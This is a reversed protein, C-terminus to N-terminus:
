SILIREDEEGGQFIVNGMGEQREAKRQEESRSPCGSFLEGKVPIDAGDKRFVTKITM